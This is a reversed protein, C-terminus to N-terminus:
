STMASQRTKPLHGHGGGDRICHNELGTLTPLAVAGGLKGWYVNARRCRGWAHTPAQRCCSVSL